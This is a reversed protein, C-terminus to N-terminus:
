TAPEPVGGGAESRFQWTYHDGSALTFETVTQWDGTEVLTFANALPALVPGGAVDSNSFFPIRVVFEGRTGFLHWTDSLAGGPADYINVAVDVDGALTGGNWLGYGGTYSEDGVASSQILVGDQYTNGTLVPESDDWQFLFESASAASASAGLALAAAMAVMTMRM